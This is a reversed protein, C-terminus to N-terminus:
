VNLLKNEILLDIFDSKLKPPLKRIFKLAVTKDIAEMDRYARVLSKIIEKNKYIDYYWAIAEASTKEPVIQLAGIPLLVDLLAMDSEDKGMGVLEEIEGNEFIEINPLYDFVFETFMMALISSKMIDDIKAIPLAIFSDGDHRSLRFVGTISSIDKVVIDSSISEKWKKDYDAFKKAFESWQINKLKGDLWQKEAVLLWEDLGFEKGIEQILKVSVDDFNKEVFYYTREEIEDGVFRFSNCRKKYHKLIFWTAMRSSLLNGTIEPRKLLPFTIYEECDFCALLYYVGM